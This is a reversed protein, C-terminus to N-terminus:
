GPSGQLALFTQISRQMRDVSAYIKKSDLTTHRGQKLLFEGECITNLVELGTASYVCHSIWDYSPKFHAHDTSLTILDARKGVALSGTIADIGLARAGGLTAMSLIERSSVNPSRADLKQLRAASGMEEFMNLNNNSAAGDTGLGVKVGAKLLAGVPATGASLKMNSEPNHIVSTGTSALLQIDNKSLHVGHAFMVQTGLQSSMLGLKALRMVPTGGHRKQSEANESAAESVHIHMPLKLRKATEAAKKFSEDSVTYPAHPGIMAMLRRHNKYKKALSEVISFAQASQTTSFTEKTDPTPFDAHVEGLLARLGARDLAKAAAEEFYYMDCVTTTGSRICELAALQTGLEVFKADVLKGEIPLITGHLWKEFPLDEALGRLLSMALHTHGNILGPMVLDQGADLWQKSQSKLTAADKKTWKKIAAIAGDKIAILHRGETEPRSPDQTILTGADVTLDFLKKM